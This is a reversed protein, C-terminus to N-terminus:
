ISLCIRYFMKDSTSSFQIFDSTRERFARFIELVKSVPSISDDSGSYGRFYYINILWRCYLGSWGGFKKPRYIVLKDLIDLYKYGESIILGGKFQSSM